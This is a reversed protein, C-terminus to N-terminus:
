ITLTVKSLGTPADPNFGNSVALHMAFLQLAMSDVISSRIEDDCLAGPVVYEHALSEAGSGIWYIKKTIARVRDIAENVSNQPMHMPALVIVQSDSNLSSIPGHLYDATSMGQVNIKCTEQIKLAAEKANPYAFGRGLITLESGLDISKAIQAIEPSAKLVRQAETFLSQALPDKGAWSAVLLYSILLQASYSKTAAVAIEPGAQLPIHFHASAALPSQSDNTISVLTAGSEKARLAFQVLDTSKGSQSISIVLTNEYHLKSDYISVSSPSCLGCPLGLQTEILYKLFHAANDSTGRALILISQISRSKLVSQLEDPIINGNVLTKFIEPTQAIESEMISGHTTM